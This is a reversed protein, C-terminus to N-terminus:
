HSSFWFAQTSHKFLEWQAVGGLSVQSLEPEHTSHVAENWHLSPRGQLPVSVQSGLPSQWSPVGTVQVV